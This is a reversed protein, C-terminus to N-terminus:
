PAISALGQFEPTDRISAFRADDQIGRRTADGGLALAKRLAEIAEDLKQSNAYAAALNVWIDANEPYQQLFRHLVGASIHFQGVEAYMQGLQRISSPPLNSQSLISMSLGDFPGQLNMRRYIDALELASNIDGGRALLRELERRRGDRRKTDQIQKLFTQAKVTEPNKGLFDSMVEEAEAFRFQQMYLDALQIHADLGGQDAAMRYWTEAEQYDQTAGRGTAFIFGLNSQADTCGREAALRKWRFAEKDDQTVGQGKSYMVGLNFQADSKGQEAALRYWRAAEKYDQTVGRGTYYMSGMNYQAVANGQGASLRYWKIAKGYDHTVAHEEECMHGFDCQADSNGMEAAQRMKDAAIARDGNKSARMAGQYLDLAQDSKTNTAATVLVAKVGDMTKVYGVAKKLATWSQRLDSDGLAETESASSDLDEGGALMERLKRNGRALSLKVFGNKEDIVVVELGQPKLFINDKLAEGVEDALRTEKAQVVPADLTTAGDEQRGCATLVALLSLSIALPHWPCPPRPNM